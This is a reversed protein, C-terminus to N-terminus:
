WFGDGPGAEPIGPGARQGGLNSVGAGRPLEQVYWPSRYGKGLYFGRDELRRKLDGWWLPDLYDQPLKGYKRWEVAMPRGAVVHYLSRNQTPNDMWSLKQSPDRATPDHMLRFYAGDAGYSVRSGAGL